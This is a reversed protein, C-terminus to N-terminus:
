PQKEQSAKPIQKKPKPQKMGSSFAWVALAIFLLSAIGLGVLRFDTPQANRSVIANAAKIVKESLALSDAYLANAFLEESKSLEKLLMEAEEKQATKNAELFAIRAVELSSDANSKIQSLMSQLKSELELLLTLSANAESLIKKGDKLKFAAALKKSAAELEESAASPTYLLKRRSQSTLAFYQQSYNAILTEVKQKEAAFKAKIEEAQSIQEQEQQQSLEKLKKLKAIASLSLQLSSLHNGQSYLLHAKKIDEEIESFLLSQTAATKAESLSDAAESAAKFSLSSLSLRYKEIRKRLMATAADSKGEELLKLSQNQGEQLDFLLSSLQAFYPSDYAQISSLAEKALSIAEIAQTNEKEFQEEKPEPLSPRSGIQSLLALAEKTKNQQLLLKATSLLEADKSRNHYLVQLEAQMLADSLAAQVDAIEFSVLFKPASSQLQFSFAASTRGAYSLFSIKSPKYFDFGEVSFNTAPFPESLTISFEECAVSINQVEVIYSIKHKGSETSHVREKQALSFPKSLLFRVSITHQGAPLFYIPGKLSGDSQYLRYARGSIHAYADEVQGDVKEDLYLTELDSKSFVSIAREVWAGEPSAVKCKESSSIRQAPEYDKEFKLIINQYASVSPLTITSGSEAGFADMVNGSVIESSYVPITTKAHFSIPSNSAFPSPNVTSITIQARQKKGLIPSPLLEFAKANKSLEFSLFEPIKRQADLRAKSLSEQISKLKGAARELDLKCGAFYASLQDFEPLLLMSQRRLISVDEKLACFDAELRAAKSSLQQLLFEKRDALLKSIKQFLEGTYSSSSSLLSQLEKAQQREYEVDFGDKELADLFSAFSNLQELLRSKSDASGADSSLVLASDALRYATFYAKYKKGLTPELSAQSYAAKADNLLSNALITNHSAALSAPPQLTEQARKITRDALTQTNEVALIASAHVSSLSSLANESTEASEKALSIASALYDKMKSSKAEKSAQLLRSAKEYESEAQVLGSAIGSFEKGVSVERLQAPQADPILHIDQRRLEEIKLSLSALKNKAQFEAQLYENEMEKYAESLNQYLGIFVIISSNEKGGALELYRGFSLNSFDPLQPKSAFYEAISDSLQRQKFCFPSFVSAKSQAYFFPEKAVGSYAPSGAGALELEDYAKQALFAAQISASNLQEYADAFNSLAEAYNNPFTTAYYYAEGTKWFKYLVVMEFILPSTPLFFVGAAFLAVNEASYEFEKALEKVKLMSSQASYSAEKAAALAESAGQLGKKIPLLEQNEKLGYASRLEDWSLISANDAGLSPLTKEFSLSYIRSFGFNYIYPNSSVYSPSLWFRELASPNICDSFREASLCSFFLLLIFLRKM